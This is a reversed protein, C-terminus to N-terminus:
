RSAEPGGEPDPGDDQDPRQADPGQADHDPADPTQADAEDGLPRGRLQAIDAVRRRAYIAFGVIAAGLLMLALPLLPGPWTSYTLEARFWLWWYAIWCTWLVSQFVARRRWRFALEVAVRGEFPEDPIDGQWVSSAIRHREHPGLLREWVQEWTRDDFRYADSM